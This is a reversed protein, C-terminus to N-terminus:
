RGLPVVRVRGPEGRVGAIEVRALGFSEIVWANTELHGTVAETTFSSPGEALALPLLMQDALHRDLACGAARHALLAACAQEAVSEARKGREGLAGFGCRLAEYHATLFIGAGTCAASVAQVAIETPCALPELALRAQRAMREAIAQPLNAVVARGGIRQLAGPRELAIPQLGARGGRGEISAAIEGLGIPFWGWANLAVKAKVGTMALAPLWVDRLYDFPPSWAMHTGGRITVQSAAECLALPLLLTQLVLSSAGASGGPRAAGVDFHYSGARCASTPAFDLTLSGLADGQVTAGCVEAMARVATLHQAALGPRRRGARIKELRLPRGLIASLSLASRLVQGGGEGFSGDILLPENLRM